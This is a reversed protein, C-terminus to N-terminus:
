VAFAWGVFRMVDQVREVEGFCFCDEGEFFCFSECVWLGVGGVFEVVEGGGKVADRAGNSYAGSVFGFFWM